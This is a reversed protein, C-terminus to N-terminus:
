VKPIQTKKLYSTQHKKFVEREEKQKWIANDTDTSVGKPNFYYLGLPKYYKKFKSGNLACRLWFDWDAASKYNSDFFGNQDHITKRWMPMCHPANGRLMAEVSFEESPYVQGDSSNNEFTENEQFTLLNDTYVLDVESNTALFYGLQEMFDIAHRDDLNANTIFDGSAINIAANWIGYIGPDTEFKNYIINNPYKKLYELITEEENGPSNANILILECKEEFITQRTIDELFPKIFKDGNYLSTIISIKPIKSTDIESKKTQNHTNLYEITQAGLVAHSMQKLIKEKKHSVSLSDKLKQAWSKYLTYNKKVEKIQKKFSLESPYAWRSGEILIDKWVVHDEIKKLEYEVRAFLKKDKLKGTKKQKVKATLFDLHASWDTAVVPLANYSAEFLPLGFGEGHTTSVIAKIKSNTYLGHIEEETMSGHLLYVKCKKEGLANIFDKLYKETHFKDIKSGSIFSAKLVLGVSPDERFEEVFWKITHELNKRPGFLAVALFNFETDLNLDIRKPELEKVPYPVVEIPCNCKIISVQNGKSHNTIEYKTKVFGNKAHESPVIIKDIEQTKQLWTHSVRDTEIGATVCVSYNARKKFESPIGVHIQVDFSPQRNEQQCHHLYEQLKQINAPITEDKVITWATNGWPLSSIYIDLGPIHKLSEYVLRAHEGYGSQTLIPAELIIKM